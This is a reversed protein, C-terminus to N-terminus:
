QNLKVATATNKWHYWLDNEFMKSALNIQSYPNKYEGVLGYEKAFSDFTRQWFQLLGNAMYEGTETRFDGKALKDWGSEKDILKIFKAPDLHSDTARTYAYTMLDVQENSLNAITSQSLVSCLWGIFFM